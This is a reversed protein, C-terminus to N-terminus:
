LASQPSLILTVFPPPPMPIRGHKLFVGQEPPIVIPTDAFFPLMQKFWALNLALSYEEETDPMTVLPHAFNACKNESPGEVQVIPDIPYGLRSLVDAVPNDRGPIHKLALKFGRLVQVLLDVPALLDLIRLLIHKDTLDLEDEVSMKEVREKM